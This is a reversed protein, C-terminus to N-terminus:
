NKEGQKTSKICTTHLPEEESLFAKETKNIMVCHRPNLYQNKELTLINKQQLKMSNLFEQYRKTKEEAGEIGHFTISTKKIIEWLEQVNYYHMNEEKNINSLLKEEVKYKM